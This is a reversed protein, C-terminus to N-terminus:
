GTLGALGFCTTAHGCPLPLASRHTYVLTVATGPPGFQTGTVTVTQAASTSFISGATAAASLIPAIYSTTLTETSVQGGVSLTWIHNAGM